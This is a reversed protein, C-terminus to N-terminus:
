YEQCFRKIAEYAEEKGLEGAKSLDLCGGEKQKLFTIRIIGRVYYADIYISDLKIATNLDLIAEENEKLLFKAHGRLYYVEVENPNIELSKGYDSIAGYYDQLMYKTLGRRSYAYAMRPNLEIAKTYDKIAGIYDKEVCKLIGSKMYELPSQSFVSYSVLVLLLLLISKIINM